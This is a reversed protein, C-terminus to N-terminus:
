RSRPPAKGFSWTTYLQPAFDSDQFDSSKATQGNTRKKEVIKAIQRDTVEFQEAIEEETGECSLWMDVIKQNRQEELEEPKRATWREYTQRPVSLM